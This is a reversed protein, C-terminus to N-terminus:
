LWFKFQIALATVLVIVHIAEAISPKADQFSFSLLIGAPPALILFHDLGIGSQYLLTIVSVLMSMYLLDIYKQKQINKKKTYGNYSLLLTLLLLGVLGIKLYFLWDPSGKFDLFGFGEAFQINQFVALRDYMFYYTGALLYPTLLGFLLMLRERFTFSRLLGLGIMAVIFLFSYSLYFLSGVATWIGINFIAGAAAYKRYTAFAEMLVLVYLTNAMVLPSLYLFEPFYSSVLVYFMGPLLSIENAIRYKGVIVNIVIAQVVVLFGALLIGMTSYPDIWEYIAQSFIGPNSLEPQDGALLASGRLVFAYVLLFINAM